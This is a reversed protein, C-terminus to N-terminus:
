ANHIMALATAITTWGWILLARHEVSAVQRRTLRVEEDFTLTKDTM